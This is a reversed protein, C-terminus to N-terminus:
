VGADHKNKDNNERLIRKRKFHKVALIRAYIIMLLFVLTAVGSFLILGKNESQLSVTIREITNRKYNYDAPYEQPIYDIPPMRESNIEVQRNAQYLHFNDAWVSQQIEWLNQLPVASNKMADIQDLLLETDNRSDFYIATAHNTIYSLGTNDLSIIPMILQHYNFYLLNTEVSIDFASDKDDDYIFVTRYRRMFALRDEDWIWSKPAELGLPYVGMDTYSITTQTILARYVDWDEINGNEIPAHLVIAGGHDQAYKLVECFQQMAPYDDHLFIPMVSLVFPIGEDICAQVKEMLMDCPMFPYVNDIVLYQTFDPPSDEYPWQWNTIEQMLAAKTLPASFDILPCYRIREIQCFFPIVEDRVLIKGNHYDDEGVSYSQVRDIVVSKEFTLMDDFSYYLVAGESESEEYASIFGREGESNLYSNMFDYGMVMIHGEYGSIAEILETEDGTLAYIILYDYRDLYNVANSPITFDANKSFSSAIDALIEVGNEIKANPHDPYIILFDGGDDFPTTKVEESEESLLGLTPDLLEQLPEAYASVTLVFIMVIAALVSIMRRYMM